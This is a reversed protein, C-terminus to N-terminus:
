TIKLRGAEVVPVEPNDTLRVWVRYTAPALGDVDDPDVRAIRTPALDGTWSASVWDGAEPQESLPTVALEVVMDLDVDGEVEVSLYEVSARNRTITKLTM